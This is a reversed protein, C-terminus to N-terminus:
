TIENQLDYKAWGCIKKYIIANKEWFSTILRNLELVVVKLRGIVYWFQGIIQEYHIQKIFLFSCSEHIKNLM